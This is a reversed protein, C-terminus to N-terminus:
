SGNDQDRLQTALAAYPHQDLEARAAHRWATSLAWCRESGEPASGHCASCSVYLVGASEIARYGVEGLAHAGSRCQEPLVVVQAGDAAVRYAVYGDRRIKSGDQRDWRDFRDLM